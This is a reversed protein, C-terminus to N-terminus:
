RSPSQAGRAALTDKIANHAELLQQTPSFRMMVFFNKDPEPHDALFSDWYPELHKLDDSSGIQQRRLTKHIEGIHRMATAAFQKDSTGQEPLPLDVLASVEWGIEQRLGNVITEGSLPREQRTWRIESLGTAPAFACWIRAPDWAVFINWPRWLPSAHLQLGDAAMMRELTAAFSSLATKVHERQADALNSEGYVM